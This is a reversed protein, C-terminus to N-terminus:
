REYVTKGNMVTMMVKTEAIRNVDMNLIDNDLVAFDALYGAEIKGIRDNMFLQAAGNATFSDLAQQVSLCEEKNMSCGPYSISERTCALQIGLLPDTMEVPADSGNSVLTGEYLTRFPYSTSALLNGVRDKYMSSDYDIFQSQIYCSLKQRVVQDIQSKRMIQCHVLGHHLPNGELVNDRFVDLVKQVAEDGIAHCITPMNFRNALRVFMEIDEDEMTMMGSTAPDDHYPKSMAATRGGLSGDTILKLPGIRFYDNGVDTTYGDDLFEAFQKINDFECQENVRVTLEERYAMDEFVHLIRKPDKVVSLFDDSGVTTIGRSNCFQAGARIYERLEQDDPLPEADHIVLIGNEEVIGTEYTIKGGEVVTDEHIGAEELAKGNVAMIHGCVRTLAIPVETSVADLMQRTIHGHYGRGILWKGHHNELHNRVKEIVEEDTRCDKLQVHSLYYGLGLLHLHSDVFGPVVTMGGLDICEDGEGLEKEIEEAAGTRVIREDQVLFANDETGYLRCHIFGRM